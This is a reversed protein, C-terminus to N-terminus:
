GANGNRVVALGGRGWEGAGFLYADNLEANEWGALIGLGEEVSESCRHLLLEASADIEIVDEVEVADLVVKEVFYALTGFSARRGQKSTIM